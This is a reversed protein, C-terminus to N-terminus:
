VHCGEALCLPSRGWFEELDETTQVDDLVRRFGQVEQGVAESDYSMQAKKLWDAWQNFLRHARDWGYTVTGEAACTGCFWFLTVPGNEMPANTKGVMGM